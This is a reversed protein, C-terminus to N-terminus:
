LFTTFLKGSICLFFSPFLFYTSRFRYRHEAGQRFFVTFFLLSCKHPLYLEHPKQVRPICGQVTHSQLLHGDPELSSSRSNSVFPLVSISHHGNFPNHSSLSLINNTLRVNKPCISSYLQVRRLQCPATM